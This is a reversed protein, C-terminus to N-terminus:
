ESGEKKMGVWRRWVENLLAFWPLFCEGETGDFSLESVQDFHAFDAAIEEQAM